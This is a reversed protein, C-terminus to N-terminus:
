QGFGESRTSSRKLLLLEEVREKIRAYKPDVAALDDLSGRYQVPEEQVSSLNAIEGSWRLICTSNPGAFKLAIIDVPTGIPAGIAVFEYRTALGLGVGLFTGTGSEFIAVDNDASPKIWTLTVRFVGDTGLTTSFIKGNATCKFKSSGASLSAATGVLFVLITSVVIKKTPLM